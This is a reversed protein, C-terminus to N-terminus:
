AVGAALLADSPDVIRGALASAAVTASSGIYIHAEPSGMRGRFNRTSSTICTEGPALLGMHGGFCAGCTSNTVVAGAELLTQVYGAKVADLYIQQSAPTVILRVNPHVKRGSVIAAAVRLDSLKGNACSGIFAQDIAVDQAFDGLGVTNKPVFGPLAVTPTVEGLDVVWERAYTAGADPEAPEFPVTDLTALHRLTVDDAPFLGFDASIEALMTALTSRDDMSLQALGPGAFEVAHGEVSGLTGAIHLFIDKGFVNAPREGELVIRVTPSIKYWTKGTCLIELMEALGLGRAACNLAGSAITHSDSSVLTGGPVALAHDFAIQHCIGQAGIDFVRKIGFQRAFERAIKQATADHITPAPAFHDMILSVREPYPVRKPLPMSNSFFIDLLMAMDVDCVVIDGPTVHARGGHRALIKEVMTMAM